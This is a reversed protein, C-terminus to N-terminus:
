GMPVEQSNTGPQIHRLPQRFVITLDPNKEKVKHSIQAAMSGSSALASFGLVDPNEKEVWELTQGITLGLGPQDLASVEVGEEELVAALYLISLPPFAAISKRGEREDIGENPSANIFAFKM